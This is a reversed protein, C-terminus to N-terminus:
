MDGIQSNLWNLLNQFTFGERNTVHSNLENKNRPNLDKIHTDMFTHINNRRYKGKNLIRRMAELKEIRDSKEEASDRTNLAAGKLRKPDLEGDGNQPRKSASALAEGGGGGEGGGGDDSGSSPVGFLLAGRAGAM